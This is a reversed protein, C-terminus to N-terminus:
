VSGPHSPVLSLFILNFQISNNELINSFAYGNTTALVLKPKSADVSSLGIDADVPANTTALVLSSSTNFVGSIGADSTEISGPGSESVQSLIILAPHFWITSVFSVEVHIRGNPGKLRLSQFLVKESLDGVRQATNVVDTEFKNILLPSDTSSEPLIVKTAFHM